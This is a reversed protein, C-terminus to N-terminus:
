LYYILLLLNYNHKLWVCITFSSTNESAGSFITNIEDSSDLSKAFFRERGGNPIFSETATNQGIGGNLGGNLNDYPGETSVNSSRLSSSNGDGNFCSADDNNDSQDILTNSGNVIDTSNFYYNFLNSSM